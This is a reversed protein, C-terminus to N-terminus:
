PRDAEYCLGDARVWTSRPEMMPDALTPVIWVAVHRACTELPVQTGNMPLPVMLGSAGGVFVASGARLQANVVHLDHATKAWGACAVGLLGLLTATLRTDTM